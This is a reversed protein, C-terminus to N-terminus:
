DRRMHPPMVHEIVDYLKLEIDQLRKEFDAELEQVRDTLKVLASDDELTKEIRAILEANMSRGNAKAERTIRDRMGEPMRLMFKDFDRVPTEEAM